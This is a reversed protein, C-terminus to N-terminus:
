AAVHDIQETRALLAERALHELADALDTWHIADAPKDGGVSDEPRQFALELLFIDLRRNRAGNARSGLGVQAGVAGQNVQGASPVARHPQDRGIEVQQELLTDIVDGARAAANAWDACRM